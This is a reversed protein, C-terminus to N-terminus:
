LPPSLESSAPPTNFLCCPSLFAEWIASIDVTNHIRTYVSSHAHSLSLARARARSLSLSLSLSTSYMQNCMYRFGAQVRGSGELMHMIYTYRFMGSGERFGLDYGDAQV